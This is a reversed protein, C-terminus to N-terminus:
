KHLGNSIVLDDLTDFLGGIDSARYKLIDDGHRDVVGASLNVRHWLDCLEQASEIKIKLEIPRFGLSQDYEVKM